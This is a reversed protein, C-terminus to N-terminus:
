ARQGVLATLIGLQNPTLGSTPMLTSLAIDLGPQRDYENFKILGYEIPGDALRDGELTLKGHADKKFSTDCSKIKLEGAFPQIRAYRDALEGVNYFWDVVFSFPVLDWLFKVIDQGGLAAFYGKAGAWLGELGVLNNQIKATATYKITGQVDRLWLYTNGLAQNDALDLIRDDAQYRFSKSYRATFVSGQTRRLFDLRRLIAAGAGICTEVERILPAFGFKTILFGDSATKVVDRLTRLHSFHGDFGGLRKLIKWAKLVLEAGQKMLGKLTFIDRLLNPVDVVTPIQESFSLFAESLFQSWDPSGREHSTNNMWSVVNNKQLLMASRTVWFPNAYVLTAGGPVPTLRFSTIKRTQLSTKYHLVAHSEKRPGTGDWIDESNEFLLRDEAPFTFDLWPPNLIRIQVPQFRYAAGRTRHRPYSLGVM